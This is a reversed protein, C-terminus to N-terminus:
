TCSHLTFNHTDFQLVTNRIISYQTSFQRSGALVLAGRISNYSAYNMAIYQGFKDLKCRVYKTFDRYQRPYTPPKDLCAMPLAFNTKQNEISIEHSLVFVQQGRNLRIYPIQPRVGPNSVCLDRGRSSSTINGTTKCHAPVTCPRM